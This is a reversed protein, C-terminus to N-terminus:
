KDKGHLRPLGASDRDWEALKESTYAYGKEAIDKVRNFDLLGFERVPFRPYFDALNQMTEKTEDSKILWSVM